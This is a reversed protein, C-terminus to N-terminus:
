KTKLRLEMLDRSAHAEGHGGQQGQNGHSASDVLGGWPGGVQFGNVDPQEDAEEEGEQDQEDVADDDVQGDLALVLLDSGNFFLGFGIANRQGVCDALEEERGQEEEETNSEKGCHALVTAACFDKLRVCLVVM